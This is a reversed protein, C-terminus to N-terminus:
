LKLLRVIEEEPTELLKFIVLLDGYSFPDKEVGEKYKNPNLRHSLAAQTIGLENAIVKQDIGLIHRQGEIWGVLDMVKYKKKQATNLAVRPM